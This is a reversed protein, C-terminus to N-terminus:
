QDITGNEMIANIQNNDFAQSCNGKTMKITECEIWFGLVKVVSDSWKLPM